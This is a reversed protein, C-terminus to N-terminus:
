LFRIAISMVDCGHRAVAGFSWLLDIHETQIDEETEFYICNM